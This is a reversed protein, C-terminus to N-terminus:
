PRRYRVSRMAHPVAQTEHPQRVTVVLADRYAMVRVSADRVPGLAHRVRERVLGGEIGSGFLERHAGDLRALHFDLGRTRGDRVQMATFHGDTGLVALIGPDAPRGDVEVAWFPDEPRVM